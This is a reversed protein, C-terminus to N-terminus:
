ADPPVDHGMERMRQALEAGQKPDTIADLSALMAQQEAGGISGLQQQMSEGIRQGAASGPEPMEDWLVEFSDSDAADVLLPYGGGPIDTRQIRRKDRRIEYPDRGPVHVELVV